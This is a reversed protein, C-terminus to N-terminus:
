MARRRGLYKFPNTYSGYSNWSQENTTQQWPWTVVNMASNYWGNLRGGSLSAYLGGLNSGLTWTSTWRNTAFTRTFLRQIYRANRCALGGIRIVGGSFAGGLIGRVYCRKNYDKTTTVGMPYNANFVYARNKCQIVGGAIAGGVAGIAATVLCPNVLRRRAVQCMEEWEPKTEHTMEDVLVMERPRLLGSFAELFEQSTHFEFFDEISWQSPEVNSEETCLGCTKPCAIASFEFFDNSQDCAGDLELEACSSYQFDAEASFAIDDCKNELGPAINQKSLMALSMVLEDRSIPQDVDHGTLEKWLDESSFDTQGIYDDCNKPEDFMAHARFNSYTLFGESEDEETPFATELAFRIEGALYLFCLRHFCPM